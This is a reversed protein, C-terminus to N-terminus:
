LEEQPVVVEGRAEKLSDHTYTFAVLTAILLLITITAPVWFIYDEFTFQRYNAGYFEEPRKIPNAAAEAAAAEAEKSAGEIYDLISAIEDDTMNHPPMPVKNFKEFLEVALPDGDQIMAQSNRIFSYLWETERRETVGKLAPGVLNQDMTHCAACTTRFLAKGDQASAAPMMFIMLLFSTLITILNAKTM